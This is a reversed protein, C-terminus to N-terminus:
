RPSPRAVLLLASRAAPPNVPMWHTPPKGHRRCQAFSRIPNPALWVLEGRAFLVLDSVWESPFTEILRWDTNTKSEM